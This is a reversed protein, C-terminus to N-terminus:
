FASFGSRTLRVSFDNVRDLRGDRVLVESAAEVDGHTLGFRDLQALVKVTRIVQGEQCNMSKLMHLITQSRDDNLPTM